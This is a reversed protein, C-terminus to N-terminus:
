IKEFYREKLVYKEIKHGDEGAIAAIIGTVKYKDKYIFTVKWFLTKKGLLFQLIEKESSESDQSNKSFNSVSKKLIQKLEDDIFNENILSLYNVAYDCVIKPVEFDCLAKNFWGYEVIVEPNKELFFLVDKDELIFNPFTSINIGSSVDQIKIKSSAYEEIIKKIGLCEFNDNEEAIISQFDKEIQQLIEWANKRYEYYTLFSNKYSNAASMFFLLTACIMAFFGGLLAGRM